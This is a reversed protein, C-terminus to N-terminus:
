FERIQTRMLSLLARENVKSFTYLPIIIDYGSASPSSAISNAANNDNDHKLVIGVFYQRNGRLSNIDVKAIEKWQLQLKKNIDRFEFHDDTIKIYGLKFIDYFLFSYLFFAAFLLCFLSAAMIPINLGQDFLIYALLYLILFCGSAMVIYSIRYLLNLSSKIFFPIEYLPEKTEKNM